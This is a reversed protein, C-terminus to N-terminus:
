NVVVSVVACLWAWVEVSVLNFGVQTYRPDLPVLLVGARMLLKLILGWKIHSYILVM